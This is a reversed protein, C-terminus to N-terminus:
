KTVKYPRMMDHDEHDVIHCHWVYGPGKTPDFPFLNHGAFSKNPVVPTSTPTWRVVIRMVQGPYAKATDKWGAEALDPPTVDGMLYGGSAVTGGLAPNGGLANDGNPIDYPLPPGWGPCFVGPTCSPSYVTDGPFASRWADYYGGTLTSGDGAFSERNLVQFQVLHTHMPHADMTLNIIEWLETSGVKPTESIGDMFISAINPSNMGMYQTNNVLVAVPGGPGEFEKLVLQRRKDIKVGPAINGKGDTLRVMKTPRACQGAAAPNCSTDATTVNAAVKFQMIQAMQPQDAPCQNNPYQSCAMPDVFPVPSLGSPFPVPADNTVTITQNNLGTFDVIVDYREGPAIFVINRVGPLTATVAPVPTDLYNDDSGIVYVPAQGFNLRWMRANAGGLLRLRYRRPEVNYYPWPAGNAIVVDGAFEPIWFPHVTPNPPPGNLNSAQDGSGDPFYLQSNIDFQRDQFAIEIERPGAPLNKPERIPDRLFYFTALGSYVNTRTQGMAHDHFWLTGPEQANQYLYVDKGPGANYLSYFDRGTKGDPTFWALPGGDVYSSAEAGHLHAVAPAPGVYPQNCEAQLPDTSPLFPNCGFSAATGLVDTWDITQDVTVLGQVLGPGTPSAPNFTPLHNVYTVLTPIYRRAEVTVAPWNAPGIVKNTLLNRTEYAWVRTKGFTVGLGCTDSQGQPLVVQDIEKMTVKLLPNALANVRPIPGAPGFVPLSVAFQPVCQGPLATQPVLFSAEASGAAIVCAAVFVGACRKVLNTLM